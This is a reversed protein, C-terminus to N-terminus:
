RALSIRGVVAGTAPDILLVRDAGGGRLRVALRDRVQAIAEIATGAPEDLVAAFTKEPLATTITGPLPGIAVRKVITAIVVATGALILVGMVIAAIKVARAGSGM